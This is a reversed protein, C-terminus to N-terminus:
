IKFILKMSINRGMNYVGNRGTLPNQPAYKLRSLHSQYAADALNEAALYISVFDSRKGVKVQAGMGASLLTYAPTATETGYASFFKNQQWFYDVGFKIYFNTVCNGAKKFQARIEGRYRPAPIFPLYRTSDPQKNQRAQVYSFTNEIHLWDLPHPHLDVYIEGGTLTANGQAFRYAPTPEQPDPISDGGLANKLKESFIFNSIFNTYPTVEFSLHDSNYFYALDIQHSIESKLDPNGYEFRLTGEHKGNSSIEAINPARFGRSLNFKLTSKKNIQYSLGLSGSIGNYNSNFADFKLTTTSDETQVPNELSDLVLKKTRINRNDFRLGGALNLKNIKKQTLVFSGIDFLTYAPILFEIGKNANNQQMGSLGASTEWGKLEAFNYRLNYNLTRLDFFLDPEDPSLVDGFERRKNQQYGLDLTITGKALLYYTNSQLRLHNIQQHPFGIAYGNLDKGTAWVENASGNGDPTEFVFRGLSDREGEAMNLTTNFSSLNLHTYGWKKTMGLFLSGNYERFGSNYVKGDYRNRYNGAMKSSYRGLWQIGKKNGANALSYGVMNNNSQYNSLMHTKIQGAPPAKPTIFNLVGAIGDSGYMLSGPGKVIEIRDVSYEDIEIGHEDGWQQGEQRIGNYLSIVRNYGLGRIVPKSVGVGTTIQNVGPVNKLADILNASSNEYLGSVDVPKIIIPSLKLETSRSVATVVVDNLESVAETLSFNVTTDKNVAIREVLKKYGTYSIEFLYSGSKINELRYNGNQNTITGTKLDSLYISVGQLPENTQADKVYGSITNQALNSQTALVIVAVTYICKLKM